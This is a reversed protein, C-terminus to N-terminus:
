DTNEKREDRREEGNWKSPYKKNFFSYLGILALVEAMMGLILADSLDLIKDVKGILRCVLMWATLSLFITAWFYIPQFKGSSYFFAKIISKM